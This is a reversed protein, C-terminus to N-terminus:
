AGARVCRTFVDLVIALYVFGNRLRIYTIDSVWVQDPRSVVLGKVLNPLASLPTPQQHHPM